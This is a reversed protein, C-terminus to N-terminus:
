KFYEAHKGSFNKWTDSRLYEDVSGFFFSDTGLHLIKNANEQAAEIDHSVMVITMGNENLKRLLGYFEYSILPDLCAAPEDLVLMAGASCLARALLVRQQQGGSLERFSRKKINSIGLLEMNYAAIKKEKSTYFPIIKTLALCGSLVVEDVRAPFDKQIETQQPLYGIDGRRLKENLVIAGSSLDVLGLMAKVLTSKGSGNEGVIALYEGKEIRFSINKFAAVGDYEVTIDAAEFQM